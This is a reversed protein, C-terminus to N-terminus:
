FITASGVPTDHGFSQWQVFTLYGTYDWTFYATDDDVHYTNAEFRNNRATFYTVDATDNLFGNWNPDGDAHSMTVDNDHVYLDEIENPGYAGSGRPQQIAMIGGLNGSLTNGYVEVGPSAAILIGDGWREPVWYALGNRRVTNNRIVADRSIEYFIGMQQNDEVINNELLANINDIDCWLGPGENFAFTNGRVILGDTQVFKTGGGEWGPDFHAANNYTVTNGEVLVNNGIGVIGIEGNLTITNRLLQLANGIRIGGSHNNRITNDAVLWGSTDEANIAGYQAPSAYKEIILNRITVNDATKNFAYTTVSTEITHGSPNTGIHIEDAADDFYWEGAGMDVLAEVRVQRVDDIFLEEAFDCGPYSVAWDVVGMPNDALTLQCGGVRSALTQTQSGIKWFSGATVFSGSALLKAGSLIAGSEGIFIDGGRPSISDLRHTGTKILFTAGAPQGNIIDQAADSTQIAVGTAIGSSGGTGTLLLSSRSEPTAKFAAGALVWNTNPGQTMTATVLSQVSSTIRDQDLGRGTYWDDTRPAYGEGAALVAAADGSYGAVYILDAATTSFTGSAMTTGTGSACPVAVDFGNVGSYQSVVLTLYSVTTSPTVTFTLTGGTVNVAYFVRIRNNGADECATLAIYTNTGDSVSTLEESGPSYMGTTVVVTNGTTVTTSSTSLTTGSVGERTATVPTGVRAPSAEALSPLLAVLSLALLRRM